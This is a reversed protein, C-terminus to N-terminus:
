NCDLAAKKLTSKTVLTQNASIGQTDAYSSTSFPNIWHGLYESGPGKLVLWDHCDELCNFTQGGLEFSDDADNSLTKLHTLCEVISEQVGSEWLSAPIKGDHKEELAEQEEVRCFCIELERIGVAPEEESGFTSTRFGTGELKGLRAALASLVQFVEGGQTLTSEVKEIQV